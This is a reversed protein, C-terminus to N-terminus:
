GPCPIWVLEAVGAAGCLGRRRLGCSQRASTQEQGGTTTVELSEPHHKLQLNAFRPRGFLSTDIEKLLLLFSPPSILVKM